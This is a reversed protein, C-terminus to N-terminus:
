RLYEEQIQWFKMTGSGYYKTDKRELGSSGEVITRCKQQCPISGVM